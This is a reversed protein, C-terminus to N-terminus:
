YDRKDVVRYSRCLETKDSYNYLLMKNVGKNYLETDCNEALSFMFDKIETVTLGYNNNLPWLRFM